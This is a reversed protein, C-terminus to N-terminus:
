INYCLIGHNEIFLFDTFLFDPLQKKIKEKAMFKM